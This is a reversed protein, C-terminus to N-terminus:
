RERKTAVVSNRFLPYELDSGESIDVSFFGSSCLIKEITLAPYGDPLLDSQPIECRQDGPPDLIGGGLELDKRLGAVKGQDTYESVLEGGPKLMQLIEQLSKELGDESFRNFLEFAEVRAISGPPWQLGEPVSRLDARDRNSGPTVYWTRPNPGGELLLHIREFPLLSYYGRNFLWARLSFSGEAFKRLSFSALRSFLNSLRPLFFTLEPMKSFLFRGKRARKSVDNVVPGNNLSSPVGASPERTIIAKILQRYDPIGSPESQVPSLIEVLRNGTTDINFQSWMLDQSSALYENRAGPDRLKRLLEELKEPDRFLYDAVGSSEAVRRYDPTDSAVVPIGLCVSIVMKHASKFCRPEEDPHNLVIIDLSSVLSPFGEVSWPIVTAWSWKERILPDPNTILFVKSHRTSRLTEILGDMSSLNVSNGFWGIRLRRGNIHERRHPKHIQYDIPNPLFCVGHRCSESEPYIRRVYDRQEQNATIVLDATRIMSRIQFDTGWCGSHFDDIDFVVPKGLKKFSYVKQLVSTDCLKQVLLIGASPDFGITSEHGLLKLKEHMSFCRLRTSATNIDGAPLWSISLSNRRSVFDRDPKVVSPPPPLGKGKAGAGQIESSFRSLEM